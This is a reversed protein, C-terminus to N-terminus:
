DQTSLKNSLEDFIESLDGCFAECSRSTKRDEAVFALRADLARNICAVQAVGQSVPDLSKHESIDLIDNKRRGLQMDRAFLM